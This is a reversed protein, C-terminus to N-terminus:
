KKNKNKKPPPPTPFHAIGNKELKKKYKRTKEALEHKGFKEERIERTALKLAIENHILIKSIIQQSTKKQIGPSNM